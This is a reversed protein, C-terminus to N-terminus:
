GVPQLEKTKALVIQSCKTWGDEEGDDQDDDEDGDSSEILTEMRDAIYHFLQVVDEAERYQEDNWSMLTYEPIDNSAFKAAIRMLRLVFAIKEDRKALSHWQPTIWKDSVTVGVVSAIVGTACRPGGDVGLRGKTWGHSASYDACKRFIVAMAPISQNM